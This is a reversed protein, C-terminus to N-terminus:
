NSEEEADEEVVPEKEVVPQPYFGYLWQRTPLSSTTIM